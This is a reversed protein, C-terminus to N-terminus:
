PRTSRETRHGDPAPGTTAGGGRRARLAGIALLVVMLGATLLLQTRVGPDSMGLVIIALVAALALYSVYPFAWMRMPLHEGDADARTRLVIHSGITVSWTVIITSGVINLLIGLVEEAWVYNLFVGFFGFVVSALVATRPVGREDSRAAAAPAHGRQALSYLMRSAGYLNANLASLLAFAVVLAMVAAAAPMGAVELVAVFPSTGLSDSNWPLVTVMVAVSGMYFVLVRWVITRIARNVNSSPDETEAAAVAVIEIGGFAFVVVLLGSAIGELGMPAFGGHEVLNSLGPSPAPLLDLLLAIGIALFALVAGVKLFAFWFEFEGFSRVGALNIATFVVMFILALVWQPIVPWLGTVIQAAATAEAAIVVVLQIWWIWGMAFGAAPGFARGAYVSFAGSSPHAAVMEGLMRMILIVIVGAVLYSVLVAPGAEAIGAGTGVFLGAGIASGLSMMVLHRGKMSAQLGDSTAAASGSASRSLPDPRRGTSAPDPRHRSM